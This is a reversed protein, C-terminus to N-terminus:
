RSSIRREKECLHVLDENKYSIKGEKVFNRSRETFCYNNYLTIGKPNNDRIEVNIGRNSMLISASQLEKDFEFSDYVPYTAVIRTVFDELDNTELYDELISEFRDNEEYTYTYISVEDPYFFSYLDDTIYGLYNDSLGGFAPEPYLEKIKELPTGVKVDATITDEYLGTFIVNRMTGIPSTRVFVGGDLYSTYGNGLDRGEGLEDKIRRIYYNNMMGMSLISNDYYFHSSESIKSKSVDAYTKGDVEDYYDEKGNITYEYTNNSRVTVHIEIEKDTDILYYDERPNLKNIGNIINLFYESNEEGNEDYLDKDFKVYIKDEYEEEIVVNNKELIDVASTTEEPISTGVPTTATNQSFEVYQLISWLILLIMFLFAIIVGIIIGMRKKNKM